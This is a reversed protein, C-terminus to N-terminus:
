AAAVSPNVTGEEVPGRRLALAYRLESRGIVRLALLLTGYIVAATPVVVLLPLDRALYVVLGMGATALLPRQLIWTWDIERTLPRLIWIFQGVLVVETVVTVIAAAMFGFRPVLLSNAALNLASSILVSRSGKREKWQILVVYGLFNSVYMFPLVWIIVQLAPIAPLYSDHYLFPLIQSAMISTGVALPLAIVVLLRLSRQTAWALVAPAKASERTLSPYMATTLANSVFMASFVLNYAAGYYGTEADGRTINLLVSDYYYSLGLAFGGIALPFTRPILPISQKLDPKRPTVGLKRAARWCYGTMIAIGLLNAVILGYYGMGFFLAAAGALVFVVQNLVKALAALDLREFGSLIAESTGQVSYILLGITGLAIGGIMVLPRQTVVAVGIIVMATLVALGFRLTLVSGYLEGARIDINSTDRSHALERVTYPSLGLDALFLFVAGFALIATYQGFDSAGLNRVVLVSFAFSLLKIAIQAALSFASNRAIARTFHV